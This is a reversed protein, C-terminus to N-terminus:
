LLVGFPPVPADPEGFRVQASSSIKRSSKRAEGQFKKEISHPRELAEGTKKLGHVSTRVHPVRGM